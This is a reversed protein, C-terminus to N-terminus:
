ERHLRERTAAGTAEKMFDRNVIVTNRRARHSGSRTFISICDTLLPSSWPVIEQLRCQLGVQRCLKEFLGATVTTARWHPNSAVLGIRELPGVLRDIPWARQSLIRGRQLRRAYAGLNSHHIFGVGDPALTRSLEALYAAIVDAEVHVLSDFSFALDVSGDAVMSLSRGDNVHYTINTASAFRVQCEAICRPTLDVLILRAALAKLFQTWRGFGPAIELVTGAPVWPYLRPLITGYWEALPSGWAGSWEDGGRSWDYAEWTRINEDVTPM